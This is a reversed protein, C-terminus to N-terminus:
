LTSFIIERVRIRVRVRVRIVDVMTFILQM